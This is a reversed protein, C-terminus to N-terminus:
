NSKMQVMRAKKELGALARAYGTSTIREYDCLEAPTGEQVKVGAYALFAIEDADLMRVRKRLDAAQDKTIDTGLVRPDAGDTDVETVINLAQCLAFRKAYTAAAGDGQAESSGPPGKGVRAGFKFDRKHGGVHQLTCTSIVRGEAYDTSFSVTFGYKQLFPRVQEMIDEYPAFKYRISGDNNPVARKAEVVPMESQLSNFAVAFAKEADRDQTREYLAVMKEVASVNEATVGRELFAQLMMGVTPQQPQVTGVALPLPTAPALEPQSDTM